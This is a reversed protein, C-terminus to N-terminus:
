VGTSPESAGAKCALLVGGTLSYLVTMALYLLALSRTQADTLGAMAFFFAYGADRVGIGYISIPVAEMLTILPVFALFYVFDTKADLSLAMLFVCVIVSIQFCVSIAM